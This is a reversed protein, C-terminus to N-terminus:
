PFFFFRSLWHSLLTAHMKNKGKEFPTPNLKEKEKEKSSPSDAL